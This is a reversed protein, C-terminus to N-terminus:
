IHLSIARKRKKEEKLPKKNSMIELSYLTDFMEHTIQEIEGSVFSDPAIEKYGFLRANEKLWKSSLVLLQYIKKINHKTLYQKYDLYTLLTSINIANEIIYKSQHSNLPKIGLIQYSDEVNFVIDKALNEEDIIFVIPRITDKVCISKGTKKIINREEESLKDYMRAYNEISIDIPSVLKGVYVNSKDIIYKKLISM